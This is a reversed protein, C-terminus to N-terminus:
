PGQVHPLPLFYLRQQPALAHFKPGKRGGAKGLEHGGAVHAGLFDDLGMEITDALDIGLETGEDIDEGVLREEVCALLVLFASAASATAGEVPQGDTNLLAEVEGTFWGGKADGRELRGEGHAVGCQHLRKSLGTRDQKSPGIQGLGHEVHFAAIWQKSL